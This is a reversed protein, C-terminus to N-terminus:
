ILFDCVNKEMKQGSSYELQNKKTFICFLDKQLKKNEGLGNQQLKM